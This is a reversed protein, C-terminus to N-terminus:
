VRDRLLPRHAEVVPRDRPVLLTLAREIRVREEVVVPEPVDDPVIEVPLLDAGEADRADAAVDFKRRAALAVEARRRVEVDLEVAAPRRTDPRSSRLGGPAAQSGPGPSRAPVRLRLGPFKAQRVRERWGPPRPQLVM